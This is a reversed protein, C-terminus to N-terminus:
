HCIMTLSLDLKKFIEGMNLKKAVMLLKLKKKLVTGFKEMNKQFKKTKMWM